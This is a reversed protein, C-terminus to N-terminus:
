KSTAKKPSVSKNEASQVAKQKPARAAARDSFTTNPLPEDNPRGTVSPEEVPKGAGQEDAM